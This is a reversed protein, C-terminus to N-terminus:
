FPIDDEYDDFHNKLKPSSSDKPPSAASPSGTTEMKEKGQGLKVAAHYGKYLFGKAIDESLKFEVVANRVSWTQKDTLHPLKNEELQKLMSPYADAQWSNLECEDILYQLYDEERLSTDLNPPNSTVRSM